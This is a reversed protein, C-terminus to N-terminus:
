SAPETHIVVRYLDPMERRLRTELEEAVHHVETVSRSADMLAHFSLYIGTHFRQLRIDQVERVAPFEKCVAALRETYPLALQPSLEVGTVTDKDRPEIHVNIDALEGFEATLAHELQASQAHAREFSLTPEVELDLDIYMGRPTRHATVHHVALHERAAV